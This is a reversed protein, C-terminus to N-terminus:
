RTSVPLLDECAPFGLPSKRMRYGASRGINRFASAHERGLRMVDPV